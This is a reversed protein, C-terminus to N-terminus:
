KCKNVAKKRTKPPLPPTPPTNKNTRNQIKKNQKTKKAPFPTFPSSHLCMQSQSDNSSQLPLSVIECNNINCKFKLIVNRHTGANHYAYMINRILVTIM